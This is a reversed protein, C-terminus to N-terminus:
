LNTRTVALVDYLRCFILINEVDGSSIKLLQATRHVEVILVWPQRICQTVTVLWGCQGFSQEERLVYAL